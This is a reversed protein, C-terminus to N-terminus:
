KTIVNSCMESFAKAGGNLVFQVAITVLLLGMLRSLLRPGTHGLLTMVRPAHRLIVFTLGCTVAIASCLVLLPGFAQAQQTLVLVTSIAGPGSLMPFALPILAIDEQEIGDQVEEPTQIERSDRMRLMNLGIGFLIIGGAIEFASFTVSFLRLLSDGLLAFVTLTIFAALAARWAMRTRKDPPDDETMTVFLPAAAFPDVIIFLSTFAILAYQALTSLDSM